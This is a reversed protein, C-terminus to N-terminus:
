RKQMKVWSLWGAKAGRGGGAIDALTIEPAPHDARVWHGDLLILGGFRGAAHLAHTREAEPTHPDRPDVLSQLMALLADDACTWCGAQFTAEQGYIRIKASM